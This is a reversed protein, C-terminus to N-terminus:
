HYWKKQNEMWPIFRLNSIDAISSKPVKNHYGYWVSIVHDLHYAGDVGAKGRKEFNPLTHIPQKRTLIDVDRRYKDFGKQHKHGRINWYKKRAISQQRKSKKSHTKGFMGGKTGHM